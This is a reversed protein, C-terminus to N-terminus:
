MEEAASSDNMTAQSWRANLTAQHAMVAPFRHHSTDTRGAGYRAVTAILNM